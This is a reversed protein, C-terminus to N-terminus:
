SVGAVVATRFHRNGVMGGGQGRRGGWHAEGRQGRAGDRHREGRHGRGGAGKGRGRGVRWGGPRVKIDLNDRPVYGPPYKISHLVDWLLRKERPPTSVVKVKLPLSVITIQASRTGYQPPSQVHFTINGSATGTYNWGGPSVQLDVNV